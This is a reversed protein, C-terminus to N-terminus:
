GNAASGAAPTLTPIWAHSMRSGDQDKVLDDVLLVRLREIRPLIPEFLCYRHSSLETIEQEM